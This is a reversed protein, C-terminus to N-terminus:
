GNLSVRRRDNVQDPKMVNAPMSISEVITICCFYMKIVVSCANFKGLVVNPTVVIMDCPFRVIVMQPLTTGTAVIEEHFVVHAFPRPAVASVPPGM